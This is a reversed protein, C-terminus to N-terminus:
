DKIFKSCSNQSSNNIRMFYIGKALDSTNIILTNDGTQVNGPNVTRIIRGFADMITITIPENSASYYAVTASENVPNPYLQVNGLLPTVSVPVPDFTTENGDYDTQKLRYYSTGSFPNDDQM